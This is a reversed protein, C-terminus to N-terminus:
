RWCWRARRPGADALRLATSRCGAMSASTTPSSASCAQKSRAAGAVSPWRPPTAPASPPVAWATIVILYLVHVTGGRACAGDLRQDFACGPILIAHSKRAQSCSADIQGDLAVPSRACDSVAVIEPVTPADAWVSAGSAPATHAALPARHRLQTQDGIRHRPTDRRGLSFREDRSRDLCGRRRLRPARTRAERSRQASPLWAPATRLAAADTRCRDGSAPDGVHFPPEKLGDASTSEV